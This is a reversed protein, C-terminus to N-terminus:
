RGANLPHEREALVREVTDVIAQTQSDVEVNVLGGVQISGLTTRDITEPILSVSFTSAERDVGSVTLSAGDLAVYGKHFIYNQWRPAIAFTLERDNGEKRLRVLEATTSVHGSVVHGGVEDGVKFSREVNVPTVVKLHKLNTTVLTEKIIDFQTQGSEHATVTLCTGNVAVSAGLQLGEGLEGLELTLRSLDDGHDIARVSVLAQVIGTFM